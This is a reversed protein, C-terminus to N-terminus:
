GPVPLKWGATVDPNGKHSRTRCRRLRSRMAKMMPDLPNLGDFEHLAELVQASPLAAEVLVV